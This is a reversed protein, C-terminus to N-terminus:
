PRRRGEVPGPTPREEKRPRFCGVLLLQRIAASGCIPRAAAVVLLSRQHGHVTAAAAGAPVRFRRGVAGGQM